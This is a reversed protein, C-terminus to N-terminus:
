SGSGGGTSASSPSTSPTIDASSIPSPALSPAPSFSPLPPSSTTPLPASSMSLPPPPAPTQSPSPPLPKKAAPDPGISMWFVVDQRDSGETGAPISQTSITGDPLPNFDEEVPFSGTYGCEKLWREAEPRTCARFNPFIQCSNIQVVDASCSPATDQARSPSSSMLAGALVASVAIVPLRQCQM